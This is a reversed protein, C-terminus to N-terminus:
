MVIINNCVKQSGVDAFEKATKPGSPKKTDVYDPDFIEIHQDKNKKTTNICRVSLRNVNRDWNCLQLLIASKPQALSATRLSRRLATRQCLALVRLSPGIMARPSSQSLHYCLVLSVSSVLNPKAALWRVAAISKNDEATLVRHGQGDVSYTRRVPRRLWFMHWGHLVLQKLCPM